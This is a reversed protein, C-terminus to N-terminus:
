YHQGNEYYASKELPLFFIEIQQYGLQRCLRDISEAVRDQVEQGRDFWWVQILPDHSVLVGGFYFRSPLYEVSFWDEPAGVIASLQAPLKASLAMVDKEEMGKIVIQPM